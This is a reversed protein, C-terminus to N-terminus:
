QYVQINGQAVLEGNVRLLYFYTGEALGSVAVSVSYTEGAVVEGSFPIALTNGTVVQHLSLSATGSELATFSFSVPEGVTPNPYGTVTWDAKQEPSVVFEKLIRCENFGENIAALAATIDGYSPGGEFPLYTGALAANALAYLGSVSAENLYSMVTEPLDFAKGSGSVPVADPNQCDSSKMTIFRTNELVVEGLGRSLRMNLGLTITQALLTNDFQGNNDLPIGVPDISTAIGNLPQSVGGGPMRMFFADLHEAKLTFRKDGAGIVLPTQLLDMLVERTTRGDCFRGNDSGYFGQTQTCLADSCPPMDQLYLSDSSSCGNQPNSVSLYYTGAESDIILRSNSVFGNPGTWSYVWSSDGNSVDLQVFASECSLSTDSLTVIPAQFDASLVISDISSCSTLLDTLKLYYIGPMRVVPQNDDAYFAHPGTWEFQYNGASAFSFLRASDRLCNLDNSKSLSMAPPNNQRIVRVSDSNVCATQLDTLVLYYIGAETIQPSRETSSFGDPGTWRFQYTGNRYQANLRTSSGECGLVGSGVQLYPPDSKDLVQAFVIDTCGLITDTATLRYYGAENVVPEAENSTFGNPGTWSFSLPLSNDYSVRLQVAADNCTLTGGTAGVMLPTPDGEVTISLTTDCRSEYYTLRLYYTGPQSVWPEQQGSSFGNPGYWYYLHIGSLLSDLQLQVSTNLCSLTDEVSILATPVTLYEYVEISDLGTCGTSLDKIRVFYTGTDGVSIASGNGLLGSANWWEYQYNGTPYVSLISRDSVCNLDNSKRIDFEPASYEEEVRVVLTGSCGTLTDTLQLFYNGGIHVWPALETSTFGNPGTWIWQYNDGAPANYSIQVSDTDCNLTGGSGSLSIPRNQDNIYVSAVTLCGNEPNRVYLRYLGGDDITPMSDQSFFGNPGLWYFTYQDVGSVVFSLDLSPNLCTLTGGNINVVPTAFDESIHINLTTDCGSAPDSIIVQYDGESDFVPSNNNSHFGNDGTWLYDYNVPFGVPRWSSLRCDLQVSDPMSLQPVAFNEGVAVSDVWVCTSASDTLQLYYTGSVGVFPQNANSSFGNPGTWLYSFSGGNLGTTLLVSDQLCNLEGGALQIGAFINQQVVEVSTTSICGNGLNKVELIYTGAESVAPTLEQSVFGNPGTWLLQINTTPQVTGNLYTLSDNCGLTDKEYQLIPADFDAFVQMMVTTDCGNSPVTLQLQYNGAQSLLPQFQTSSFSNPGSWLYQYNGTPSVSVSPKATAQYCNLTLDNISVSPLKRDALVEISDRRSCGNQPNTIMAYYWGETAVKWNAGQFVSGQPGTWQITGGLVSNASLLVSDNTCNITAGVLQLDPRTTDISVTMSDTLICGNPPGAQVYYIGPLDLSPNMENSSFGQPGQWVYVLSSDAPRVAPQIQPNACNIHGDMAKLDWEMEAGFAQPIAFDKLEATFSQSARSKVLISGLPPQCTAGPYRSIDLGIASLNLGVELWQMPLYDTELTAQSGSLTGWPPASTAHDENARM